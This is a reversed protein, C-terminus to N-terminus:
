KASRHKAPDYIGPSFIADLYLAMSSTDISSALRGIISAPVMIMLVRAGGGFWYVSLALIVVLASFVSRSFGLILM